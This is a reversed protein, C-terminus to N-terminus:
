AYGSLIAMGALAVAGGVTRVAAIGVTPRVRLLITGFGLGVGHLVATALLFGAGYALGSAGEQMESGHAHGHFLAFGGVLAAAFGAPLWAPSALLLGFVVVSTGIGVEVLPLGVGGIALMAGVAMLSLFALPVSWVARGGLQAAIAGVAMMALVHDLGGLPHALGHALGETGGLGTHSQAAGACSSLLIASLVRRM